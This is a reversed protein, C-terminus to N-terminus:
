RVCGEERLAEYTLDRLAPHVESYVRGYGKVHQAYVYAIRNDPDIMTAAGAAGDWGFLGFPAPTHATDVIVQVGLAYNMYPRGMAEYSARAKGTNQRWRWAEITEPRLIQACAVAASFRMYDETTTIIGAGGSEYSDTLRYVNEMDPIKINTEDEGRRYQACINARHWDDPVFSTHEMGCKDWINQKMYEGFKMGSAVEIIAGLVDHCLSYRFDTGPTFLLERDAIRAVVELTGEDAGRANFAPTNLEYDLGGRMGMLQEVTIDPHRAFAPIFDATRDDFRLVGDEILKLACAITQPKTMSYVWYAEKGNMPISGNADRCGAFHRYACKGDVTVMFDCAPIDMSQRLGDLYATLRDFGM